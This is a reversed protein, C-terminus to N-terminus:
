EDTEWSELPCLSTVGGKRYEWLFRCLDSDGSRRFFFRRLVFDRCRWEPDPDLLLTWRDNDGSPLFPRFFRVFLCLDGRDDSEWPALNEGVLVGDGGARPGAPDMDGM